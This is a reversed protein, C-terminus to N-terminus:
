EFIELMKNEYTKLDSQSYLVMRITKVKSLTQANKKIAKLAIEAAEEVPFGFAGTSISPFAVSEIGKQEALQLANRYCNTLLKDEPKDVGYIPGLCHIVFKNPLNHAGTIVAEGPKIPGLPESEQRLGPGAAQHIAGAVGGGPLLRANAANVVAELDDQRIIDGCVLEIVTNSITKKM